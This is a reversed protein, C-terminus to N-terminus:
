VGEQIPQAEIAFVEDLRALKLVRLVAASVTALSFRLDSQRAMQYAEILGAIGSSDIYGVDSLDVALHRHESLVALLAKRLEGSNQLDVEGSVAVLTKGADRRTQLMMSM